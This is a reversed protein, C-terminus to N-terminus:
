GSMECKSDREQTKVCQFLTDQFAQNIHFGAPTKLKQVQEPKVNCKFILLVFIQTLHQQQHRGVERWGLEQQRSIPGGKRLFDLCHPLWLRKMNKCKPTGPEIYIEEFCDCIGPQNTKGESPRFDYKLTHLWICSKNTVEGVAPLSIPFVSITDFSKTRGDRRQLVTASKYSIIWISFKICLQWINGWLSNTFPSRPVGAQRPISAAGLAPQQCFSFSTCGPSHQAAQFGETRMAYYELNFTPCSAVSQPITVHSM